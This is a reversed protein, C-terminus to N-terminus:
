PEEPPRFAHFKMERLEQELGQIQKRRQKEMMQNYKAFEERVHDVVEIIDKRLNAVREGLGSHRGELLTVEGHLKDIQGVLQDALEELRNVRGDVRGHEERWVSVEDLVERRLSRENAVEAIIDENRKVMEGIVQLREFVVDFRDDLDGLVVEKVREEMDRHVEISRDLRLGFQEVRAEVERQRELLTQFTQGIQSTQNQTQAADALALGMQNAMTDLRSYIEGREQREYEAEARLIRLVSEVEAHNASIQQRLHESGEDLGRLKEPLGKFPIFRPEMDRVVRETIEMQENLQHVQRRLQDVQMLAKAQEDRSTRVQQELWAIIESLAAAQSQSDLSM